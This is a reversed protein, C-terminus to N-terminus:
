APFAYAELNLAFRWDGHSQAYDVVGHVIGELCPVAVHIAMAINKVTKVVM